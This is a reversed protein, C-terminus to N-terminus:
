TACPWRFYHSALHPLACHCAAKQSRQTFSSLRDGESFLATSWLTWHAAALQVLTGCRLKKKDAGSCLRLLEQDCLQGEKTRAEQVGLFNLQFSRFQGKLYDLKGALGKAGVGLTSVNGSALSIRLDFEEKAHLPAPQPLHMASTVDPPMTLRM